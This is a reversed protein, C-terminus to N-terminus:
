ILELKQVKLLDSMDFTIRQQETKLRYFRIYRTRAGFENYLILLVIEHVTNM